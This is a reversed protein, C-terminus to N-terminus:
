KKVIKSNKWLIEFIPLFFQPVAESEIVVMFPKDEFTTISMKNKFVCIDM